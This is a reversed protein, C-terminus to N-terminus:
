RSQADSTATLIAYEQDFRQRLTRAPPATEPPGTKLVIALHIAGLELLRRVDPQFASVVVIKVGYKRLAEVESDLLPPFGLFLVLAGLRPHADLTKFLLDAPIGGGTAMMQMPPLEVKEISIELTRHKKLTDRFAKLEAEVSPNTADGSGRAMALVRGKDALLKATEEATVAGLVQYTDLDVKPSRGVSAVYVSMAAAVVVVIAILAQKIGKTMGTDTQPPTRFSGGCAPFPTM